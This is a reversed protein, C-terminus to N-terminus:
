PNIMELFAEEDLVAINLQKAKALKSGAEEGAILYDTASSISGTVRAGRALLHSKAENRGMSKLTGTIVFKKGSLAGQNQAAIGQTQLGQQKLFTILQQNDASCFWTAVSQAMTSGIGEIAALKHQDLSFLETLDDINECIKRAAEAGIMRIGLAFLLNNSPRKKSKEINDIIKRALKEGVRELGLVADFSLRYIDAISRIVSNDLMQDLLAPGLAEIDMANRSVFHNLRARLQAPCSATNVCRLAVENELQVLMSNCSPCRQPVQYPESRSADEEIIVELVKPIIEGSKEVVITDNIRVDLRQIEAFNHLTASQVTTGALQVPEFRAVPTIVGTRGVQLEIASLKTRAKQAAYKYAILWRPTKATSGLLQQFSRENVKVVIGDVPYDLTDKKEEWTKIFSIIQKQESILPSHEVICFGQKRVFEMAQQYSDIDPMGLLNHACFQLGRKAVLRPDQMKLTGSTTNRPNQFQKKEEKALAQNIRKFTTYTMFVEGRIELPQQHPIQLPISRITKLNATIDDGTKGDGRTLGQVFQGNRYHLTTSVGDLKLECYFRAARQDLLRRTREIWQSIEEESYTNAISLMPVQHEVKPFHRTLDNGVRQTPSSSSQYQPHDQELQQLKKYLWDYHEDSVLSEGRGYYAQDLRNIEDRLNQIHQKASTSM